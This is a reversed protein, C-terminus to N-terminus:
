RKKYVASKVKPSAPRAPRRFEEQLFRLIATTRRELRSSEDAQKVMAQQLAKLTRGQEELAKCIQTTGRTVAEAIVDATEPQNQVQGRKRKRSVGEEEVLLPDSKDAASPMITDYTREDQLPTSSSSSSPRKRTSPSPQRVKGQSPTHVPATAAVRAVREPNVSAPSQGIQQPVPVPRTKPTVREPVAPSSSTATSTRLLNARPQPTSLQFSFAAPETTIVSPQWNPTVPTPAEEFPSDDELLADFSIFPMSLHNDTPPVYEQLDPLATQRAVKPPEKVNRDMIWRPLIRGSKNIMDEQSVPLKEGEVRSLVYFFEEVKAPNDSYKLIRSYDPSGIRAEEKVHPEYDTLHDELTKAEQCRFNCLTCYYPVRDLPIHDKLVHAVM